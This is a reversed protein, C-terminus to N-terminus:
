HVLGPKNQQMWTDLMKWFHAVVSKDVHRRNQDIKLENVNWDRVKPNPPDNAWTFHIGKVLYLTRFFSTLIQPDNPLTPSIPTVTTSYSM